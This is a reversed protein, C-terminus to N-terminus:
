RIGLWALAAAEDRFIATEEDPQEDRLTQFMRALGFAADDAVLLARKSGKGLAPAITLRRVGRGTVAHTMSQRFDVLHRFWPQFAPDSRLEEQHTLLDDDTLVGSGVSVILGQATDIRYSVPM